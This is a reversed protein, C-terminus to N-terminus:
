CGAPPAPAARAVCVVARLARAQLRAGAVWKYAMYLMSPFSDDIYCASGFVGHVVNVDDYGKALVKDMNTGIRQAMAKFTAKPEAGSYIDSFM